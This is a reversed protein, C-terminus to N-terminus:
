AFFFLFFCVNRIAADVCDTAYVASYVYRIATFATASYSM